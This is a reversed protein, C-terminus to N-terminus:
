QSGRVAAVSNYKETFQRIFPEMLRFREFREAHEQAAAHMEPTKERMLQSAKLFAQAMDDASTSRTPIWLPYGTLVEAAAHTGVHASVIPLGTAMYEYVKGSTVYEGGTLVLVLVDWEALVGAVDKKAVPGLYSVGDNSYQSILRAHANAAKAIGAGMHGRFELTSRSMAPDNQRSICWGNMLDKLQALSFTVTGLYGFRMGEHSASPGSKPSFQPLFDRDFGNRVIKIREAIAPYRRRYFNAIPSNVCWLQQSNEVLKREWRGRRSRTSFAEKGGIVDLSWADRYDIVYPVGQADYLKWAASLLTYPAPSVLLLDAPNKAHIDMVAKELPRRWSGFIREPFTKQDLRRRWKVWTQPYRARLWSYSRINPDLDKRALPLNAVRIRPDIQDALTPDIGYERAWSEPELTVVTVDWGQESFLNATALMRYACSKAAPPFGIALYILHPM